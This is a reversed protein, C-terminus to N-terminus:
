VIQHGIIMDILNCQKILCRCRSDEKEEVQHMAKHGTTATAAQGNRTSIGAAAAAAHPGHELDRQINPIPLLLVLVQLRPVLALGRRFTTDVTSRSHAFLSTERRPATLHVVVETEM